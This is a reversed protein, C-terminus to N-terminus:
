EMIFRSPGLFNFQSINQIYTSQKCNRTEKRKKNYIKAGSTTQKKKQIQKPVLLLCYQRGKLQHM